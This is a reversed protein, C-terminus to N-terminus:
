SSRRTRRCCSTAVRRPLPRTRVSCHRSRQPRGRPCRSAPPYCLGFDACGQLKLKLKLEKANGTRTYPLSVVFKGRYIEQEGFYEDKHVEGKPFVAPRVAVDPTGSDFGFREKYLYYGDRIDFHLHVQNADADVSYRFVQEPPLVDQDQALAVRGCCALLVGLFAYLPWSRRM